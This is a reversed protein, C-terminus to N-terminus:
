SAGTPALKSAFACDCLLLGKRKLAQDNPEQSESNLRSHADHRLSHRQDRCFPNGSVRAFRSIDTPQVPRKTLLSVGVLVRRERRGHDICGLVCSM